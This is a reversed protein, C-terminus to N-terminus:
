GACPLVPLLRCALDSWTEKRLPLLQDLNLWEAGALENDPAPIYGAACWAVYVLGLHVQGVASEADNIIGLYEFRMASQEFNSLEEDLERLMGATVTEALTERRDTEDIHGGIGCSYLGHLRLETGHRPYCLLQGASNRILVYPILQKYAPDDEVLAREIWHVHAANLTAHIDVPFAGSERTWALPLASTEVCCIAKTKVM